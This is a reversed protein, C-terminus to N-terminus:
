IYRKTHTILIDVQRTDFDDTYNLYGAGDDYMLFKGEFDVATGNVEVTKNDCDITLVDTATWDRQVALYTGDDPNTFTVTRNATPSSSDLTFQIVPLQDGSGDFTVPYSVNGSGVNAVDLVTTAVTARNYPEATVFEISVACYGGQVDSIAINNVTAEIYKRQIGSVPLILDKNIPKLIKKLQSIREDLLERGSGRIVGEVIIRGGKFYANSTISDDTNLLDNTFVSREPYRYTTTKTTIWGQITNLDTGNFSIVNTTTTNSM